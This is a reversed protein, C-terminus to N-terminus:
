AVVFQNDDEARLNTIVNDAFAQFPEGLVDGAAAAFDHVDVVPAATSESIGDPPVEFAVVHHALDLEIGALDRVEFAVESDRLIDYAVQDDSRVFLPLGRGAPFRRM